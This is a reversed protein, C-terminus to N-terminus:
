DKTLRGIDIIKHVLLKILSSCFNPGFGKQSISQRHSKICAESLGLAEATEKVTAGVAALEAVRLEAPSIRIPPISMNQKLVSITPADDVLGTQNLTRPITYSAFGTSMNLMNVTELLDETYKFHELTIRASEHRMHLDAESMVSEECLCRIILPDPHATLFTNFRRAVNTTRGIKVVGPSNEWSIVYLFSVEENPNSVYAV